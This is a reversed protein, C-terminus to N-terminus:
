TRNKNVSQGERNQLASFLWLFELLRSKQWFVTGMCTFKNGEETKSQIWELFNMWENRRFFKICKTILFNSFEHGICVLSTTQVDGRIIQQEPTDEFGQLFWSQSNKKSECFKKLRYLPCQEFFVLVAHSFSWCFSRADVWLSKSSFNLPGPRHHCIWSAEEQCTWWLLRWILSSKTTALCVAFITLRRSWDVLCAVILWDVSSAVILWDILWDISGDIQWIRLIGIALARTCCPEFRHSIYCGRNRLPNASPSMRESLAQSRDHKERTYRLTKQVAEQDWILSRSEILWVSQGTPYEVWILAFKADMWSNCGLDSQLTIYHISCLKSVKGRSGLGDVKLLVRSDTLTVLYLGDSRDSGRDSLLEALHAKWLDKLYVEHM